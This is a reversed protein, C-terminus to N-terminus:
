RAAGCLQALCMHRAEAHALPRSKYRAALVQDGVSCVRATLPALSLMVSPVAWSGGYLNLVTEQWILLIHKSTKHVSHLACLM